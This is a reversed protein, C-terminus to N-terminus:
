YQMFTDAEYEFLRTGYKTLRRNYLELIESAVVSSVNYTEMILDINLDEVFFLSVMPVLLLSTFELAIDEYDEDGYDIFLYRGIERAIAFRMAKPELTEDFYIFYEEEDGIFDFFSFADKHDEFRLLDTLEESDADKYKVINIKLEMALKFVDVPISKLNTNELTMFAKKYLEQTTFLRM